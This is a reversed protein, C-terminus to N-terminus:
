KCCVVNEFATICHFFIIRIIFGSCNPHIIYLFATTSARGGGTIYDYGSLGTPQTNIVEKGLLLAAM